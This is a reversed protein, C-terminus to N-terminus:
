NSTREGTARRASFIEVIRYVLIVVLVALVAQSHQVSTFDCSPMPFATEILHPHFVLLTITLLTAILDRKYYIELCIFFIAIAISAFWYIRSAAVAEAILANLDVPSCAMGQASWILSVSILLFLRLAFQKMGGERVFLAIKECAM